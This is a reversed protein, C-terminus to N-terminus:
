SQRAWLFIAIAIAICVFILAIWAVKGVMARRKTRRALEIRAAVAEPTAGCHTSLILRLDDGKLVRMQAAWYDSRM